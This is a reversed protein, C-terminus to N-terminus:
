KHPLALICVWDINTIIIVKINLHDTQISKTKKRRRKRERERRLNNKDYIQILFFFQWNLNLESEKIKEDSIFLCCCCCCCCYCCFYQKSFIFTSMAIKKEHIKDMENSYGYCSFFKKGKWESFFIVFKFKSNNIWKFNSRDISQSYLSPLLILLDSYICHLIPSFFLFMNFFLPHKKQINLIM